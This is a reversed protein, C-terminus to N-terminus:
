SAADAALDIGKANVAVKYSVLLVSQVAKFM